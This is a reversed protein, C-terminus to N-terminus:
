SPKTRCKSLTNLCLEVTHFLIEVIVSQVGSCLCVCYGHHMVVCLSFNHWQSIFSSIIFYLLTIRVRFGSDDCKEKFVRFWYM